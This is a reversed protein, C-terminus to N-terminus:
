ELHTKHNPDKCCDPLKNFAKENAKLSDADYGSKAVAIRIKEPNTKKADYYVTLIKSDIDQNSKKVGKEFSLDNEIIKKCQDCLASTKIRVTDIQAFSPKIFGLILAIAIIIKNM